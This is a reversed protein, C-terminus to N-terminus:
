SQRLQLTPRGDARLVGPNKLWSRADTADEDFWRRTSGLRVSYGWDDMDQM